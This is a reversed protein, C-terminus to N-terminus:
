FALSVRVGAGGGRVPAVGVRVRDLPMESWRAPRILRGVVFGAGTGAMALFPSVAIARCGCDDSGSTDIALGAALGLLGGTIAGARGYSRAFGVELRAVDARRVTVVGRNGSSVNLADADTSRIHGTLRAGAADTIRVRLGPALTALEQAFLASAEISLLLFTAAALKM